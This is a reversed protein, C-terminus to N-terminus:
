YDRRSARCETQGFCCQQTGVCCGVANCVFWSDVRIFDLEVSYSGAPLSFSKHIDSGKGKANFGGCFNGLEGCKSIAGCNWGEFDQPNEFKNEIQSLKEILVNDIGFSEDDAAGDLNTWVRVTLPQFQSSSSPLTIYCGTVRVSEEKFFGGCQQTGSTGVMKSKTWCTKGNLSM